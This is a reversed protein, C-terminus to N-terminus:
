TLGKSKLEKTIGSALDASMEDTLYQPPDVLIQRKPLRPGGNQHFSAIDAITAKGTPHKAPGDFGVEIEYLGEREVAGPAGQFTPSLAAFLTGTNRLISVKKSYASSLQNAIDALGARRYARELKKSKKSRKKGTRRRAITSPALPPWDGGGKSYVDFREQAFSRYRKGWSRIADRIPGAAAHFAEDIIHAIKEDGDFRVTITVLQSM